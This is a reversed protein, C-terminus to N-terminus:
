WNPDALPTGEYIDRLSHAFGFEPLSLVEDLGHLVVKEWGLARSFMEIRRENQGIILVYLNTPNEAYLQRKRELYEETNSQSRIEAALFYRDNYVTNHALREVVAVDAVPRFSSDGPNTLGVECAAMLEPRHTSLAQRLHFYLNGSIAQHHHSAPPMMLAYGDILQWRETEPRDEIFALYDDVSLPDQSRVPFPVSFAVTV